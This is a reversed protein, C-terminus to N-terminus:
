IFAMLQPEAGVEGSSEVDACGRELPPDQGSGPKAVVVSVAGEEEVRVLDGFYFRPLPSSLPPLRDGRLEEEAARWHRCGM